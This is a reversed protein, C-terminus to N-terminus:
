LFISPPLGVISYLSLDYYRCPSHFYGPHTGHQKWQTLITNSHACQYLIFAGACLSFLPCRHLNHWELVWQLPPDQVLPHRTHTMNEFWVWWRVCVCLKGSECLVCFHWFCLMACVCAVSRETDQYGLLFDGRCSFVLLVKHWDQEGHRVTNRGLTVCVVIIVLSTYLM